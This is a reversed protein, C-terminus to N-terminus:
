LEMNRLREKLEDGRKAAYTFSNNKWWNWVTVALSAAVSVAEYIDDDAFPLPAKGFIAVMQNALALILASTRVIVAKEPLERKENRMKKVM